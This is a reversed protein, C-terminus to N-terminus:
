LTRCFASFRKCRLTLGSKRETFSQLRLTERFSENALLTLACGFSNMKPESFSISGHAFCFEFVEDPYSLQPAFGWRRGLNIAHKTGRSRAKRVSLVFTDRGITLEVQCVPGRVPQRQGRQTLVSVTGFISNRHKLRKDM